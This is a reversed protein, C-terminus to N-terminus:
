IERVNKIVEIKKIIEKHKDVKINISTMLSFIFADLAILNGIILISFIIFLLPSDTIYISTLNKGRIIAIHESARIWYLKKNQKM